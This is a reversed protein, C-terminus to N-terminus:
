QCRITLPLFVDYIGPEADTVDSETLPGLYGADNYLTMIDEETPDADDDAAMAGLGGLSDLGGLKGWWLKAEAWGGHEYYTM